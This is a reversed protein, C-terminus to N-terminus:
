SVPAPEPALAEALARKTFVFRKQAQYSLSFLAVETLLKAPLIAVGLVGTLLRLLTYNASLVALVLGGYRAAASARGEEGAADFVLRRNTAFNLSASVARAVVVSLALRHTTAMLGVVLATDTGFAALSSLSFTLLPVYVRVSDVIPHFHSSANGDLYVTSIPVEHMPVGTRRAALLTNLEYDFRDGGITQLWALRNGHYARLGTQTDQLRRRTAAFFAYRTVTNGFRSKRPVDGVFARSGLVIGDGYTALADAVRAIDAPTHQGDSDACVVDHDPYKTAIHAFGEKLTFGKGRNVEHGIVDCGVRQVADFLHRYHPGSGDDVVVVPGPWCSTLTTALRVLKEDPEYSPVLVVVPRRM